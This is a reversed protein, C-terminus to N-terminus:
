FFIIIIINNNNYIANVRDYNMRNRARVNDFENLIPLYYCCLRIDVISKWTWSRRIPMIYAGVHRRRSRSYPRRTPRFITAKKEENIRNQLIERFFFLNDLHRFTAIGIQIYVPLLIYTHYLIVRTNSIDQRSAFGM